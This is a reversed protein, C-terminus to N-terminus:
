HEGESRGAGPPAIAARSSKAPRKTKRTGRPIASDAGRITPSGVTYTGRAIGNVAISVVDGVEVHLERPPSALRMDAPKM